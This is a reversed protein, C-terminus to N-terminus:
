NFRKSLRLALATLTRVPNAASSFPMVSMDCVYLNQTGMLRLDEDVVADTGFSGTYSSRYPMRLTGVAHHVTGYGFGKGNKGFWSEQGNEIVPRAERGNLQFQSFIRYSVDNLVAFIEDFSKRWGALAPFRSGALHDMWQQNHFKIEPVYGFPPPPMIQNGDVLCNGFSFKIDLRSAGDTLVPTEPASPDNERLHWYEHNINMEVNFPYLIQNQNDRRGRSYLIIKAHSNRPIAVNGINSIITTLENTTPHDTLGHGVQNQVQASLSNFLGSSRRLLKPSEISGGALVVTGANFTKTQGTLTNTAIIEFRGGAAHRVDEVFHNLLLQLGPGDGHSVGPTLGLQNILLEATNFVGTPETFFEDKPTGEPTLYPQHLARPTEQISFDQVLASQRLKGVVAKAVAGMSISENMLEGAQALLGNSLDQRVQSPFFELEWPQITPILGSWFISRGGLNLQPKEGIFFQDGDRGQQWFNDCAFHKALSANPFRCLNYVHTPYIYSGAELVLIRKRDGLRDALDDALIGGGIGSGIIIIDFDSRGGMYQLFLREQSAGSAAVFNAYTSSTFAM